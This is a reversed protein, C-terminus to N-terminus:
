LMFVAMYDDELYFAKGVRQLGENGEWCEEKEGEGFFSNDQSRVDDILKM